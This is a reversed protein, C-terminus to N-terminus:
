ARKVKARQHEEQKEWVYREPDRRALDDPLKCLPPGPCKYSADGGWIGPQMRGDEDFTDEAFYVVGTEHDTWPRPFDPFDDLANKFLHLRPRIFALAEDDDWVYPRKAKKTVGAPTVFEENREVQIIKPFKPGLYVIVAHSAPNERPDFPLEGEYEWREAHRTIFANVMLQETQHRFPYGFNPVGTVDTPVKYDFVTDTTLLDPSCSLEIDDVTVFFRAEAIGDARSNYELTRHVMTGRLAAYLNDLNDIYDVRRQLVASRPCAGTLATTSIHDGREQHESLAAAILEYTWPSWRPNPDQSIDLLEEITFWNPLRGPKDHEREYHSPDVLGVLM